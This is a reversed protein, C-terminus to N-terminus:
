EEKVFERALVLSGMASLLHGAVNELAGTLRTDHPNGITKNVEDLLNSLHWVIAQEAPIWEDNAEWYVLGKGDLETRATM